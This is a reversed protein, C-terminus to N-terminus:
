SAPGLEQPSWKYWRPQPLRPPVVPGPPLQLPLTALLQLMAAGGRASSSELLESAPISRIILLKQGPTGPAPPESLGPALTEVEQVCLRTQERNAGSLVLMSQLM